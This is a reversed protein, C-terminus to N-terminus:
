DCCTKGRLAAVGEQAILPVMILTAAPDAWWWGLAFNLVLGGLLIASLYACIDTQCSDAHMAASQLKRAVRRKAKALLPMVILSAIALAIGPLSPQSMEKRVLAGSAEVILYVALALFGAGILRIAVREIHERNSEKGERLRWLMVAGSFCEIVSDLGFGALAISGALLGSVIGVAAEVANWGLTFYELRSGRTVAGTERM